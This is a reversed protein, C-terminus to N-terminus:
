SPDKSAWPRHPSIRPTTSSTAPAADIRHAIRPLKQRVAPGANIGRAPLQAADNRNPSRTPQADFNWDCRQCQTSRWEPFQVEENRNPSAIIKESSPLSHM